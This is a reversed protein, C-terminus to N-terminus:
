NESLEASLGQEILKTCRQAMDDYSGTKVICKGKLHVLWACQEAQISTHDCIDMLCLIVHDFTNVDDNWLVISVGNDVLTETEIQELEKVKELWLENM